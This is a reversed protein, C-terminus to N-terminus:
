NHAEERQSKGAAKVPKNGNLGDAQAEDEMIMKDIEDRMAEAYTKTTLMATSEAAYHCDFGEFFENEPRLLYELRSRDKKLEEVPDTMQNGKVERM